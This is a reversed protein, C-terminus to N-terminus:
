LVKAHPLIHMLGCEVLIEFTVRCKSLCKNESWFSFLQLMTNLVWTNWLGSCFCSKYEYPLYSLLASVTTVSSIFLCKFVIAFYYLNVITQMVTSSLILMRVKLEWTLVQYGQVQWLPRSKPSPVTPPLSPDTLLTHNSTWPPTGTTQKTVPHTTPFPLPLLTTERPAPEWRQRSGWLGEESLLRSYCLGLWLPADSGDPGPDGGEEEPWGQGAAPREAAGGLDPGSPPVPNSLISPRTLPLLFAM